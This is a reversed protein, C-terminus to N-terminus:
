SVVLVLDLVECGSDIAEAPIEKDEIQEVKKDDLVQSPQAPLLGLLFILIRYFIILYWLDLKLLYLGVLITQAIFALEDLITVM